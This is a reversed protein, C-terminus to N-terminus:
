PSAFFLKEIFNNQESSLNFDKLAALINEPHYRVGLLIRSIDAPLHDPLNGSMRIQGLRCKKVELELCLKGAPTILTNQFSFDPSEGFIWDWSQYKQNAL